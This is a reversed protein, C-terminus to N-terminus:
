RQSRSRTILRLTDTSTLVIHNISQLPVIFEMMGKKDESWQLRLYDGKVAKIKFVGYRSETGDWTVWKGEQTSLWEKFTEQAQLASPSLAIFAVFLFRRM